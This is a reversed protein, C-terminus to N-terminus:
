PALVRIANLFYSRPALIHNGDQWAIRYFPSHEHDDFEVIETIIGLTKTPHPHERYEIHDQVLTGVKLNDM